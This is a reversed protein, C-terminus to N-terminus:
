LEVEKKLESNKEDFDKKEEILIEIEDVKLRRYILHGVVGVLCLFGIIKMQQKYVRKAFGQFGQVM